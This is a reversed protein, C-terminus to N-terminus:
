KMFMSLVHALYKCLIYNTIYIKNFARRWLRLDTFRHHHYHFKSVRLYLDSPAPFGHGYLVPCGLPASNGVPSRFEEIHLAVADNILTSIDPYFRTNKIQQDAQTSQVHQKRQSLWKFHSLKTEPILLKASQKKMNGLVDGGETVRSHARSCSSAPPATHYSIESLPCHQRPQGSDLSWGVMRCTLRLVKCKLLTKWQYRPKHKQRPNHNSSDIEERTFNLFGTKCTWILITALQCLYFCTFYFSVQLTM